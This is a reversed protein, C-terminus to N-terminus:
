EDKEESPEETEAALQEALAALREELVRTRHEFETIRKSLMENALAAEKLETQSRQLQENLSDLQHNLEQAQFQSATEIEQIKLQAKLDFNEETLQLFKRVAPSALVQDFDPAPPPAPHMSFDRAGPSVGRPGIPFTGGRSSEFGGQRQRQRAGSGDAGTGSAEGSTHVRFEDADQQVDHQHQNPSSPADFTQGIPVPGTAPPQPHEVIIPLGPATPPIPHPLDHVPPDGSLYTTTAVVVGLAVPLGIAVPYRFRRYFGSRAPPAACHM